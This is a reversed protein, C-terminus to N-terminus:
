PMMGGVASKTRARNKEQQIQEPTKSSNVAPRDAMTNNTPIPKGNIAAALKRLAEDGIDELVSIRGGIGGEKNALVSMAGSLKSFTFEENKSIGAAERLQKMQEAPTGQLGLSKATEMLDKESVTASIAGQAALAAQNLVKKYQVTSFDAAAKAAGKGKERDLIQKGRKFDGTEVRGLLLATSSGETELGTMGTTKDEFQFMLNRLDEKAKAAVKPDKSKSLAVLSKAKDQFSALSEGNTRMEFQAAFPASQAAVQAELARRVNAKAQAESVGSAIQAGMMKRALGTMETYNGKKLEQLADQAQVINSRSVMGLGTGMGLGSAAGSLVKLTGMLGTTAGTAGALGMLGSKAEEMYFAASGKAGAMAGTLTGLMGAAGTASQIKLASAMEMAAQSFRQIAPAGKLGAEFAKAFINELQKTDGQKGSVSSIGLVNSAMQEVSGVGARSLGLLRGAGRTTGMVSAYTNYINGVEPISYGLKAYRDAAEPTLGEFGTVAAGGAMATAATQMKLAALNEDLGMALKRARITQLEADIVNRQAQQSMLSFGTEAKTQALMAGTAAREKGYILEGGPLTFVGGKEEGARGTRAQQITKTLDMIDTVTDYIGIGALALGPIAGVGTAAMGAGAAAKLGGKLLAKGAAKLIPKLVPIAIGATLGMKIAAGGAAGFVSEDAQQQSLAREEEVVRQGYRETFKRNNIGLFKFPKEGPTLLNGFAEVMQMGTTPAVQTMYRQFALSQATGVNTPIQSYAGLLQSTGVAQIGQYAGYFKMGMGAATLAGSILQAGSAGNREWWGGFGGRGGGNGGGGAGGQKIFDDLTESFQEAKQNVKNFTKAAQDLEKAFKALDKAGAESAKGYEETAKKLSESAAAREQEIKKSVDLLIKATTNASGSLMKIAEERERKAALDNQFGAQGAFAQAIGVGGRSLQSQAALYSRHVRIGGPLYDLPSGTPNINSPPIPSGTNISYVNGVSGGRAAIRDQIELAIGTKTPSYGGTAQRQHAAMQAQLQVTSRLAENMKQIEERMQRIPALLDSLDVNIRTV